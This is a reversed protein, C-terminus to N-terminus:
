LLDNIRNRMGVVSPVLGNAVRVLREVDGPSTLSNPLTEIVPHRAVLGYTEEDTGRPHALRRDRRLEAATMLSIKSGREEKLPVVRVNAGSPYEEGGKGVLERM